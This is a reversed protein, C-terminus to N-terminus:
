ELDLEAKVKEWPVGPRDGNREVAQRLELLDELDEVRERLSQVEAALSKLSVEEVTVNNM